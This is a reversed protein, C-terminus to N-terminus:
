VGLRPFTEPFALRWGPPSSTSSPPRLRKNNRPKPRSKGPRTGQHSDSKGKEKFGRFRAELEGVTLRGDANRDERGWDGKIQMWEKKELVGNRNADYLHLFAAAYKRYDGKDAPRRPSTKRIVLSRPPKDSPKPRNLHWAVALEKLRMPRTPDVKAERAIIAVFKGATQPLERPSLVGNGDRDMRKLIVLPVRELPDHGLRQCLGDFGDKPEEAAVIGPTVLLLLFISVTDPWRCM